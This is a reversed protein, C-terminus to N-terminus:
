WTIQSAMDTDHLSAIPEREKKEKKLKGFLEDFLLM